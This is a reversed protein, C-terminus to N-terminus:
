AESGWRFLKTAFLAFFVAFGALALCPVIVSHPSHGGPLVGMGDIMYRLPLARSFGQIWGPSSDLPFFVGSLFAMPVMICNSIAAIAESTSAYTGVLLGITFFATVGLLIVPLTAVSWPSIHLGFFPLAGIGAFFVAQIVGVGLAV